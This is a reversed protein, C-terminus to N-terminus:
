IIVRAYEIRAAVSLRRADINTHEVTRAHLYRDHVGTSARRLHVICQDRREDAVIRVCIKVQKMADRGIPRLRSKSKAVHDSHRYPLGVGHRLLPTVRKAMGDVHPKGATEIDIHETTAQAPRGEAQRVSDWWPFEITNIMPQAVCILQM